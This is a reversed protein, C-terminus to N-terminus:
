KVGIGTKAMVDHAHEVARAHQKQLSANAARWENTGTKHPINKLKKEIISVKRMASKLEPHSNIEKKSLSAIPKTVTRKGGKGSGCSSDIGGGKGTPCFANDVVDVVPGDKLVQIKM